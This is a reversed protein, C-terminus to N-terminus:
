PLLLMNEVFRDDGSTLVPKVIGRMAQIHKRFKGLLFHFLEMPHHTIQDAQKRIGV